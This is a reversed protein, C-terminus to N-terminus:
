ILALGTCLISALKTCKEVFDEGCGCMFHSFQLVVMITCATYFVKLAELTKERVFDESISRFVGGRSLWIPTIFICLYHLLCWLLTLSRTYYVLDMGLWKCWHQKTKFMIASWIEEHIKYIFTRIESRKIISIHTCWFQVLSHSVHFLSFNM